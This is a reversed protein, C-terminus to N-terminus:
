HMKRSDVRICRIDNNIINAVYADSINAAMKIMKVLAEMQIM